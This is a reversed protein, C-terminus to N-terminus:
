CCKKCSIDDISHMDSVNITEFKEVHPFQIPNKYYEQLFNDIIKQMTEHCNEGTQCSLQHYNCNYKKCFNNVNQSITQLIDPKIKLDSKNGILSIFPEQSCYPLADELKKECEAIGNIDSLDFICIIISSNRYYSVNLANYHEQGATDWFTIRVNKNTFEKNFFDVGITPLTAKTFKDHVIRNLFSSKGAGTPGITIAKITTTM